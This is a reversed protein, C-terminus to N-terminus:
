KIGLTKFLSLTYELTWYKSPQEVQVTLYRNFLKITSPNKFWLHFNEGTNDRNLFCKENEMIEWGEFRFQNYEYVSRLRDYETADCWGEIEDIHYAQSSMYYFYGSEDFTFYETYPHDKGPILIKVKQNIFPENKNSKWEILEEPKTTAEKYHKIKNSYESEHENMREKVYDEIEQSKEQIGMQYGDIYFEAIDPEKYKPEELELGFHVPLIPLTPDIHKSLQNM